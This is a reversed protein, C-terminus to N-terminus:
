WLRWYPLILAEKTQSRGSHAAQALCGAMGPGQNQVAPTRIAAQGLTDRIVLESSRSGPTAFWFHFAGGLTNSDQGPGSDAPEGSLTGASGSTMCRLRPIERQDRHVVDLLPDEKKCRHYKHQRLKRMTEWEKVGAM